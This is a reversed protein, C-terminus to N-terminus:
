LIYPNHQLYIAIMLIGSEEQALGLMGVKVQKELVLWALVEEENQRVALIFLLHQIYIDLTNKEEYLISRTQPITQSAAASLQAIAIFIWARVTYPDRLRFCM